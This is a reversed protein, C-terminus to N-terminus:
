ILKIEIWDTIYDLNVATAKTGTVRGFFTWVNLIINTITIVNTDTIANLLFCYYLMVFISRNM